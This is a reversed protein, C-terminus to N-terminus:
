ANCRTIDVFNVVFLTFFLEFNVKEIKSKNVIIDTITNTNRFNIFRISLFFTDM